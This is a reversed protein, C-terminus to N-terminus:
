FVRRLYPIRWFRNDPYVCKSGCAKSLNYLQGGFGDKGKLIHLGFCRGISARVTPHWDRRLTSYYLFNAIHKPNSKERNGRDQGETLRPERQDGLYMEIDCFSCMTNKKPRRNPPSM